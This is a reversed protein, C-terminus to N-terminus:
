TSSANGSLAAAITQLTIEPDLIGHWEGKPSVWVAQLGPITPIDPELSPSQLAQPILQYIQTVREVVLGVSHQQYQVVLADVQGECSAQPAQSYLPAQGLSSGLDVLWLAEGRWNTLGMVCPPIAPLGVIQEISLSIVETVCTNPLLITLASSLRLGVYQQAQDIASAADVTPSSHM